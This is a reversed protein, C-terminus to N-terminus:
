QAPAAPAAAPAPATTQGAAPASSKYVNAVAEVGLRDPSGEACDPATKEVDAKVVAYAKEATPADMSLSTELRKQDANMGNIVGEEFSINCIEIVAKTAYMGTLLNAQKPTADIPAAPDVVVDSAAPAPAADQAVALNLGAAMFALALIPRIM